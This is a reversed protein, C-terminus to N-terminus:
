AIQPCRLGLDAQANACALRSRRQGSVSNISITTDTSSCLIGLHSQASACMDPGESNAYPM